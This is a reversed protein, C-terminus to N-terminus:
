LKPEDSDEKLYEKLLEDFEDKFISVNHGDFHCKNKLFRVFDKGNIYGEETLLEAVWKAADDAYEEEVTDGGAYVERIRLWALHKIKEIQEQKNM